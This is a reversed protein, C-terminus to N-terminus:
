PHRRTRPDRLPSLPGGTGCATAQYRRRSGRPYRVPGLAMVAASVTPTTTGAPYVNTPLWTHGRAASGRLAAASSRVVAASEDNRAMRWAVRRGLTGVPWAAAM